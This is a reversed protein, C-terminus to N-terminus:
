RAFCLGFVMTILEGPPKKDIRQFTYGGDTFTYKKM